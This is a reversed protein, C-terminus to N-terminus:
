MLTSTQHSTPRSQAQELFRRLLPAASIALSTAAPGGTRPITLLALVAASRFPPVPVFCAWLLHDHQQRFTPGMGMRRYWVAACESLLNLRHRIRLGSPRACNR